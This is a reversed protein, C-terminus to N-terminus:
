FRAGRMRSSARRVTPPAASQTTRCRLSRTASLPRMSWRCRRRCRCRRHTPTPPPQGPTSECARRSWPVSALPRAAAHLVASHQGAAL